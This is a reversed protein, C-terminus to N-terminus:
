TTLVSRAAVLSDVVRAGLRATRDDIDLPPCLEAVDALLWDVRFRKCLEGIPAFQRIVWSPDVGPAAPASVGPAWAPPFVDLCVTVYLADLPAIFEKLLGQANRESCELDRLYRVGLTDARRFLASTNATTAVGLCCYDFPLGRAECDEAVQYFPTGSSADPAPLRLDFHADFNIIGLRAGPKKWDLYRRCGQYSAWGIEHGGGLGIVFHNRALEEALAEAYASQGAVLDAEVEIDGVDVLTVEHHWAMNALARRLALPGEAAGPRGKNLQVGRDSALGVLAIGDTAPGPQVAQHWRVGLEGDESDVRGQWPNQDSTVM